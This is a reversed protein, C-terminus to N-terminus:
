PAADEEDDDIRQLLVTGDGATESVWGRELRVRVVGKPNVRTELAQVISGIQLQKGGAAKSSMEFGTRIVARQKVVYQPLGPTSKVSKRTSASEADTETEGETETEYASSENDETTADDEDEDIRQLLVTGDGATESVWGQELRVRVVGKPNVRTELAQVISGMQRQKGGAAKASMDVGTAIM